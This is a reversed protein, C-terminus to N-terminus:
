DYNYFGQLRWSRRDNSLASLSNFYKTFYKASKPTRRSGRTLRAEIAPSGAVVRATM